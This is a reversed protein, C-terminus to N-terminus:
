GRRYSLWCITTLGFWTPLKIAVAELLTRGDIASRYRSWVDWSAQALAGPAYAARLAPLPDRIQHHPILDSLHSDEYLTQWPVALAVIAAALLAKTRVRAYLTLALPVAAAIQHIHVYAGGLLAFAAPVLTVYAPDDCSRALRRAVIIGLVLM